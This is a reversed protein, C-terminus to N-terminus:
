SILDILNKEKDQGNSSENPKIHMLCCKVCMPPPSCYDKLLPYVKDFNVSVKVGYDILTVNTENLTQSSILARYFYNSCQVVCLMNDLYTNIRRSVDSLRGENIKYYFNLKNEMNIYPETEFSHKIYFESPDTICFLRYLYVYYM